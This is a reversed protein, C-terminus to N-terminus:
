TFLIKLRYNQMSTQYKIYPLPIIIDGSDCHEFDVYSFYVTYLVICNYIDVNTTKYERSFNTLM